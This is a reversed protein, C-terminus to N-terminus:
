DRHLRARVSASAADGLAVSDADVARASDFDRAGDPGNHHIVEFATPEDLSMSLLPVTHMKVDFSSMARRYAGVSPWQTTIVALHADDVAACIEGGLCWEQTVLPALAERAGPLWAEFDEVRYRTIVVFATPEAMPGAYVQVMPWLAM